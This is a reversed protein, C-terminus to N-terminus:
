RGSAEEGAGELEKVAALSLEEEGAGGEYVLRYRAEGDAHGIYETVGICPRVEGRIVTAGWVRLGSYRLHGGRARKVLGALQPPPEVAGPDSGLVPEIPAPLADVDVGATVCMPCIWNGKPVKKLPPTLCALHWGTGCGDCLLMSSHRDPMNCVECALDKSPRALQPYVGEDRIEAHCPTCMSVHIDIRSGCRGELVLVGSERVEVIRYVVPLSKLGLQGVVPRKVYVYSGVPLAAVQKSYAGARVKAYHLQDRHQAILQNAGAMVLHEQLAEARELLSQAVLTLDDFDIAPEFRPRIAPPVIPPVAHLLQYPAVGTSKHKSCNYGLVVYPLRVDWTTPAVHALKGLARKVSQVARETLGNAQPHYASTTRHDVFSAVLLAHFEDRFETGQDTLVEAPAGYVCLVHQRFARATTAASKDPLPIGVLHKAFHEICLMVYLSGGDSMPLPGALDVGWRYFLGRLPLSNLVPPQTGYTANNRGCEGCSRSVAEAEAHMGRWWYTHSLQSVLRRSGWHGSEQHARAVLPQREALPPVLRRSGDPMVKWVLGQAYRYAAARRAARRQEAGSTSDLHAAHQLFHLTPQDELIDMSGAFPADAAEAAQALM